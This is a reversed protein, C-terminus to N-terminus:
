DESRGDPFEERGADHDVRDSRSLGEVGSMRAAVNIVKYIQEGIEIEVQAVGESEVQRKAVVRLADSLRDARRGFRESDVALANLAYQIQTIDILIGSRRHRAKEAGIVRERDHPLLLSM